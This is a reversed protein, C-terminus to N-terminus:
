EHHVAKFIKMQTSLIKAFGRADQGSWATNMEGYQGYSSQMLDNSSTIGLIHFRYPALHVDVTGTVSKQSSELFSELDRMAPDLFQGEHMLNGYWAAAQDKIFLQHKSLVHKELAHHAKILIIAAAAEFGVRGKIGVITDGVHIDRGIAYQSAIEELSQIVEVSSGKQSNIAVPEGQEFDISIKEEGTKELQKPFAEEPLYENSTLTEKGGVSTGWLGQNVSYTAKEWDGEVGNKKLYDIEEERSLSQDRIPTLIEMGPCVAQFIVDFRIQDNGAGTSGHAIAEANIENAYEAIASAQFVREASVSLPYTNNKLVNGFLLFRVGKQYFEETKELFTYSSVGLALAKKELNKKDEASFGGTNVTVAHVDYELEKALYKSCYSTDLGGSFALVVKM